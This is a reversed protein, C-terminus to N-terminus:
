SQDDETTTNDFQDLSELLLQSAIHSTSEGSEQAVERLVALLREPLFVTTLTLQDNLWDNDQSTQRKRRPM